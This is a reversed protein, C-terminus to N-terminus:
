RCEVTGLNHFQYGNVSAPTTVILSDQHLYLSHTHDLSNKGVCVAVKSAAPRFAHSCRSTLARFGVPNGVEPLGLIQEASRFRIRTRCRVVFAAVINSLEFIGVDVVAVKREEFSEIAGIGHNVM